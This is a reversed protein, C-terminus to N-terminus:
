KSTDFTVLPCVMVRRKNESPRSMVYAIGEFYRAQGQVIYWDIVQAKNYKRKAQTALTAVKKHLENALLAPDDLLVGTLTLDAAKCKGKIPGTTTQGQLSIATLLILITLLHKM